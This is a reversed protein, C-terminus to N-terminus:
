KIILRKMMQPRLKINPLMEKVAKHLVKGPDVKMIDSLKKAKLGGPYGSHHYFLKQALKKGTFKMKKANVVEVIDGLDLHPQFEPKNKGRLILAIKTALRGVVQDAADIKHIKREIKKM